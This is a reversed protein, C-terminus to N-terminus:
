ILERASPGSNARANGQELEQAARRVRQRADESIRMDQHRGALVFSATSRSVGARQAVQPRDLALHPREQPLVVDRRVPLALQVGDFQDFFQFFM